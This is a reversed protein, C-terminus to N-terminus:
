AAAPGEYTADSFGLMPVFIFSLLILGIAYGIGKGFRKALEVWLIIAIVFNVIPIFLLIVWWGPKGAIKCIIYANYIPIISAWGPQGAKVFIKWLGIIVVIAILLGILGVFPNGSHTSADPFSDTQALLSSGTVLSSAVTLLITKTPKLPNM